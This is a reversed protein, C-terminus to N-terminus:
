LTHTQMLYHLGVQVSLHVQLDLCIQNRDGSVEFVQSVRRPTFVIVAKLKNLCIGMQYGM